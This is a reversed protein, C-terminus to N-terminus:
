YIIRSVLRTAPAFLFTSLSLSLLSILPELTFVRGVVHAVLSVTALVYKVFRRGLVDGPGSPCVGKDISIIWGQM